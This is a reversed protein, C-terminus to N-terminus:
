VLRPKYAKVEAVTQDLREAIQQLKAKMADDTEPLSQITTILKLTLNVGADVLPILAEVPVPM